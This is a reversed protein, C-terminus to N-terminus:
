RRSGTQWKEPLKAHWSLFFYLVAFLELKFHLLAVRFVQFCPATWNFCAPGILKLFNRASEWLCNIFLHTPPASTYTPAKIQAPRRWEGKMRPLLAMENAVQALEKSKFKINWTQLCFFFFTLLAWKKLVIVWTRGTNLINLNYM